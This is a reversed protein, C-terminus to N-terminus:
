LKKKDTSIGILYCNSTLYVFQGIPSINMLECKAEFFIQFLIERLKKSKVSVEKVGRRRSCRKLGFSLLNWLLSPSLPPRVWKCGLCVQSSYRYLCFPRAM